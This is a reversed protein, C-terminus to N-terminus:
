EDTTTFKKTCIVAPCTGLIRNRTTNYINGGAAAVNTGFGRLPCGFDPHSTTDSYYCIDAYRHAKFALAGGVIALIAILVLM